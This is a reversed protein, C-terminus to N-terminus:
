LNPGEIIGLSTRVSERAAEADGPSGFTGLYYRKGQHYVEAWWRNGWSTAYVGRPLTRVPETDAIQGM